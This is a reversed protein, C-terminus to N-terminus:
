IFLKLLICHFKRSRKDQDELVKLLSIIDEYTGNDEVIGSSSSQRGISESNEELDDLNGLVERYDVKNQEHAEIWSAVEGGGEKSNKLKEEGKLDNLYRDTRRESLLIESEIEKEETSWDDDKEKTGEGDIKESDTKNSDDGDSKKPLPPKTTLGPLLECENGPFTVEATTRKDSCGSALSIVSTAEINSPM